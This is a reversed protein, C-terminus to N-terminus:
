SEKKSNGASSAQKKAAAWGISAIVIASMFPLAISNLGGPGEALLVSVVAIIFAACVTFFLTRAVALAPTRPSPTNNM